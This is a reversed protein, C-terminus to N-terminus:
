QGAPYNDNPRYTNSGGDISGQGNQSDAPAGGSVVVVGSKTGRSSGSGGDGWIRGGRSRGYVTGGTKTFAGGTLLVGDGANAGIEGGSMEAAGGRSRGYVTGGRKTFAGGTPLVGDGTNAGIEGGRSRGYVTGGGRKTFVGGTPRVGNGGGGWIRGGSMEDTGGSVVVGSGTNSGSM